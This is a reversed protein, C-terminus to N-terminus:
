QIFGTPDRCGVGHSQIADQNTVSKREQIPHIPGNLRSWMAEDVIHYIYIYILNKFTKRSQGCRYAKKVNYNVHEQQYGLHM